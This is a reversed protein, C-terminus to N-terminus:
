RVHFDWTQQSSSFNADVFDQNYVLTEHGSGSRWRITSASDKNPNAILRGVTTKGVGNGGFFYNVQKLGDITAGVNDYSAVAKITLGDIM